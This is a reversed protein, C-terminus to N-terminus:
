KQCPKEVSQQSPKCNLASSSPLSWIFFLSYLVCVVTFLYVVNVNYINGNRNKFAMFSFPVTNTIFDSFCLCITLKNEMLTHFCIMWRHANTNNYCCFFFWVIKTTRTVICFRILITYLISHFNINIYYYPLPYKEKATSIKQFYWKQFVQWKLM